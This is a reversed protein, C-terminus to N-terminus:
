ASRLGTGSLSETLEVIRAENLRTESREVIQDFGSSSEGRAKFGSLGARVRLGEALINNAANFDRDHETKCKPCTWFEVPALEDLKHGCCSCTKSSPYWQDIKIFEKGYWASKYELMSIFESISADHLTRALRRNKVMNKVRLSEVVILDQNEVIKTTAKHLYDRRSDRIKAHVKAVRKAQEKWRNSGKQKRSLSKQRIRLTKILDKLFGPNEVYTGDSLTALKRSGM